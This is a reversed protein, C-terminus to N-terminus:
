LSEEGNELQDEITTILHELQAESARCWRQARRLLEIRQEPEDPWGCQLATLASRVFRSILTPADAYHNAIHKSDSINNERNIHHPTANTHLGGLASGWSRRHQQDQAISERWRDKPGDKVHPQLATIPGARIAQYTPSIARPPLPVATLSNWSNNWRQIFVGLRM